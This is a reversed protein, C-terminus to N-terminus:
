KLLAQMGMLSQWGAWATILVALIGFILLWTPHEYDGVIKKNRTALLMTGLTIPLILGNLSGALILLNVPRGITVFIATSAIIFFIIMKPVNVDIWKHVSRLFSVTTYACGVVSTIGAAWLVMGFFKYGIDGAAIQFASAPPNAPNLKHGVVVVGLVALFLLVRMIGTIVIGTVSSRNVEGLNAKGVVGADLLRHGGAFTIYGGVTGGVLTVMPLLLSDFNDPLVSKIAAEAVPPNSTLAVYGTLLIMVAGLIKTFNDMAVGMEKYLFIAIGIGASILAGTKLDTGFLVNFGMACGGINGINFALGGLTILAIVFYGLGPFVMNAVDQGRKGSMTIVRWVNMQAGIDIIISALIAFAFNAQFKETFVATQTLFGPGIASTAMIFAAGLLVSWNRKVKQASQEPTLLPGSM